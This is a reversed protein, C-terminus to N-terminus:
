NLLSSPSALDHGFPRGDEETMPMQHLGLKVVHPWCFGASFPCLPFPCHCWPVLREILICLLDFSQALGSTPERRGWGTGM